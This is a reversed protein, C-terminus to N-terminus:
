VDVNSPSIISNLESSDGADGLNSLNETALEVLIKLYSLKNQICVFHIASLGLTNTMLMIKNM